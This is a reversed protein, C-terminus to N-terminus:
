SCARKTHPFVHGDYTHSITRHEVFYAPPPGGPRGQADPNFEALEEDYRPPEPIIIVEYKSGFVQHASLLPSRVAPFPRLHVTCHLSTRFFRPEELFTIHDFWMAVYRLPTAIKVESSHGRGRFGWRKYSPLYGPVSRQDRNLGQGRSETCARLAPGPWQLARIGQPESRFGAGHNPGSPSRVERARRQVAPLVDPHGDRIKGRFVHGGVFGTRLFEFAEEALDRASPVRGPWPDSGRSLTAVHLVHRM